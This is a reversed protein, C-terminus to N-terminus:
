LQITNEMFCQPRGDPYTLPVESLIQFTRALIYGDTQNQFKEPIFNVDLSRVDRSIETSLTQVFGTDGQPPGPAYSKERM